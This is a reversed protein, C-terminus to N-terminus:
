QVEASDVLMIASLDRTAFTSYINGSFGKKCLNPFNGVHDIHAHSLVACNLSAPDFTFNRNREMADSRRGQYLGCELLIRQRNVELLYQSGTTTRAAGLYHIRM